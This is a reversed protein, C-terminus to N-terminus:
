AVAPWTSAVPLRAEVVTGKESSSLELAGGLQHLRERMGRIGVGPVAATTVEDLKEVAMGTGQDEVRLRIEGDRESLRIRASSSGSHRHINTLCEQVTRFIGMEVERPHRGFDESVELDVEIKSRQVFGDIYWRLASVLGAEDLLPPHLLYSITRVEKNMEEVLATSDAIKGATRRLREIDSGIESLNMSLAALTQGVSDHLERAIRRREDDQSQMLRSALERLGQNAADLEVTRQRVREELEGQERRLRQNERRRMAGMAIIVACAALFALLALAQKLSMLNVSNQPSFWYSLWGASLIATVVSPGTGGYWSAFAVAPFIVIYAFADGLVPVVARSVALVLATALVASVYRGLPNKWISWFSFRRIAM